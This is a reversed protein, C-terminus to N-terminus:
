SGAEALNRKRIKKKEPDENDEVDCLIRGCHECVILKKKERIDAQVQPPVMNFCGGCADRRVPVVALGNRANKRIREYSSLLREEIKDLAKVRKEKLTKEEAETEEMINKLEKRKNDLDKKREDLRSKVEEIQQKKYDVSAKCEAIKKNAIQVELDQLEIEKTIADYERNNRVNMQQDQYKEILKKCDKISAQKEKITAELASIEEKFRSIRTEYGVIEDELDQVEEPLDGRIKRIEDIKSDIQQLLVLSELKQAITKEM